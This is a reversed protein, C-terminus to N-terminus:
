VHPSMHTVRCFLMNVHCDSWKVQVATWPIIYINSCLIAHYCLLRIVTLDAIYPIVHTITCFLMAIQDSNLVATCTVVHILTCLVHCCSLRVVIFSLQVSRCSLMVIQVSSLVATFPIVHTVTCFLMNVHCDSCQLPCSYTLDCTDSQLVATLRIVAFYRLCM